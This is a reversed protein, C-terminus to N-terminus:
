KKVAVSPPDFRQLDFEAVFDSVLETCCAAHKVGSCKLDWGTYNLRDAVGDNERRGCMLQSLNQRM